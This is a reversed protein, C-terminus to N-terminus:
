RCRSHRGQRSTVDQVPGMGGRHPQRRCSHHRHRLEDCFPFRAALGTHPAGHRPDHRGEDHVEEHHREERLEAVGCPVEVPDLRVQEDDTHSELDHRQQAVREECTGRETLLPVLHRQQAEESDLQARLREPVDHGAAARRARREAVLQERHAAHAPRVRRERQCGCADPRRDHQVEDQPQPEDHGDRTATHVRHVAGRRDHPDDEHGKRREHHHPEDVSLAACLSHHPGNGPAEPEILVM